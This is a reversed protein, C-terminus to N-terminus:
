LGAMQIWNTGDSVLTSWYVSLIGHNKNYANHLIETQAVAPNVTVEMRIVNAVSSYVHNTISATQLRRIMLERGPCSSPTPLTLTVSSSTTDTLIWTDTPLVTYTSTSVTVPVHRAIPGALTLGGINSVSAVVTGNTTAWTQLNATQNSAGSVALATQSGTSNVITVQANNPVTNIGINGNTGVVLNSAGVVFPHGPNTNSIGTRSNTVLGGMLQLQNTTVNGSNNTVTLLNAGTVQSFAISIPVNSITDVKGTSDISIVSVQSASGWTTGPTVGTLGTLKSGSGIFGNSATVNGYVYVPLSRDTALSLQSQTGIPSNVYGIYYTPTGQGRFFTAVNSTGLSNNIMLGSDAGVVNDLGVSVMANGVTLQQVEVEYVHSTVYINNMFYATNSVLLDNCTFKGTTSFDRTTTANRSLVADLNSTEVIPVNTITSIRGGSTVTIQPVTHDDGYTSHAAGTLGTMASANGTITNFVDLNYCTLNSTYSVESTDSNYIMVNCVGPVPLHRVPAIYLSEEQITNLATGTANLVITNAHQDADGALRGIAISQFGQNDSGAGSGIAIAYSNQTNQGAGVGIAVSNVGQHDSGAFNGIAVAGGSQSDYGAAGGIAITDEGQNEVGADNGIAIRSGTQTIVINSGFSFPDESTLTLSAAYVGRSLRLDGNNIFINSSDGTISAM